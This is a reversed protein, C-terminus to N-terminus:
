PARRIPALVEGVDGVHDIRERRLLLEGVLALLHLVTLSLEGVRPRLGLRALLLEIGADRLEVGSLRLQIGARCCSSAAPRGVVSISAAATRLEVRLARDDVLLLRLQAVPERRDLSSSAPARVRRRRQERQGVPDAHDRLVTRGRDDVDCNVSGRRSSAALSSPPRRDLVELGLRDVADLHGERGVDRLAHGLDEADALDDAHDERRDHQDDISPESSAAAKGIMVAITPTAIPAIPVSAKEPTTCIAETM